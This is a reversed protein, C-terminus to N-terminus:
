IQNDLAKKLLTIQSKLDEIDDLIQENQSDDNQLSQEQAATTLLTQGISVIFNGLSNKQNITLGDLLSLGIVTSLLAFKQPHLSLLCSEIPNINDCCKNNQDKEDNLHYSMNDIGKM